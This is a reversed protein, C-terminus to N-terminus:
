RTGTLYLQGVLPYLYTVHSGRARFMDLVELAPSERTDGVDRKYGFGLLLINSNRIPKGESNLADAVLSVVEGPMRRNVEDALEIFRTTFNFLKAKWSLYLPDVPICHGGTGPGPYFPTFGFPKSSAAQVVEWFDVGMRRSLLALENVLGINVVRFTNELLKVWEANTASSVEVVNEVIRQCM